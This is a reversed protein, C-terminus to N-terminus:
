GRTQRVIALPIPEYHKADDPFHISFGIAYRGYKSMAYERLLRTLEPWIDDGQQPTHKDM